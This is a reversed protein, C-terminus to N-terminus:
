RIRDKLLSRLGRRIRGSFRKSGRTGKPIPTIEIRGQVTKFWVRQGLRWHVLSPPFVLEQSGDPRRKLRTSAPQNRKSRM